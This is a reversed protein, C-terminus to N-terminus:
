IQQYRYCIFEKGKEQDYRNLDCLYEEDNNSNFYCSLCLSPKKILTPNIEYGDDDFIGAIKTPDMDDIHRRGQRYERKILAKDIEYETTPDKKGTICSFCQNGAEASGLVWIDNGCSCKVGRRHDALAQYLRRRLDAEKLSSDASLRRDLYEEPHIPIFAM